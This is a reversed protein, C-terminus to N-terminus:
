RKQTANKDEKINKFLDTGVYGTALTKALQKSTKPDNIVAEIEKRQKIPVGNLLDEFNKASKASETLAQMTERNLKSELVDLVANTVTAKVNLFFPLKFKSINSKLIEALRETGLTAQEKASKIGKIESAMGRLTKMDEPTMQQAIDFKGSGFIQEVAKPNNGEVTKVFEDPAMELLRAGAKSQSIKQAEKAYDELYKIYGTGGADEIAKNIVPRVASIVQAAFKEKGSPNGAFLEDVAENISNQRISNLAEAPIVGDKNTYQQMDKAVRTLVTRVREQGALSPDDMKSSITRIIPASELPKYGEAELSQLKSEAMRRADGFRLSADASQTAVKEAKNALEGIYTYGAAGVPLDKEVMIQRALNTARPQAETFRKVDEVKMEAAGGFRAAEKELKPKLKGAIDANKLANNLDPILRENTLRRLEERAQKAATQDAGGAIRNLQKIRDSEQKGYLKAFFEPDRKEARQILAQATPLTLTPQGTKPDISALAQSASIDKDITESLVKKVQPLDKGIAEKAIKAARQQAGFDFMGKVPEQEGVGMAYKSLPQPAQMGLEKGTTSALEGLGRATRVAGGAAEPVLVDAALSGVLRPAPAIQQLEKEYKGAAKELRNGIAMQLPNAGYKSALLGIPGLGAKAFMAGTEPIMQKARTLFAKGVGPEVGETASPIGLPEQMPIDAGYTAPAKEVMEKLPVSKSLGIKNAFDQYPIDSYFKKHFGQAFQEDSMDSYQPYKQRLEQIDAM